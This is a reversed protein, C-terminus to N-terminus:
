LNLYPLGEIKNLKKRTKIKKNVIKLVYLNQSLLSDRDLYVKYKSVHKFMEIYIPIRDTRFYDGGGLSPEIHSPKFWRYGRGELIYGSYMGENKLINKFVKFCKNFKSEPIYLVSSSLEDTLKIYRESGLSMYSCMTVDHDIVPVKSLDLM